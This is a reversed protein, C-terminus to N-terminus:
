LPWECAYFAGIYMDCSKRILKPLEDGSVTGQRVDYRKINVECWRYLNTEGAIRKVYRKYGITGAIYSEATYTVKM